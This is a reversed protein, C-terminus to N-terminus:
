LETKKEISVKELFLKEGSALRIFAPPYPAQLCRVKRSIIELNDTLFIESEEPKRRKCYTAESHNQEQFKLNNANYDQILKYSLYIGHRTIQTLITDLDGSLSFSSQKYIPGDDLGKGMKFLTVASTSEGALVQNQIPSGGRYKPLPSPHLCICIYKDVIEQPVIWSWGYFLLLSDTSIKSITQEINKPNVISYTYLQRPTTNELYVNDYDYQCEKAYGEAEKTVFLHFSNEVQERVILDYVLNIAWERYCFVYIKNM